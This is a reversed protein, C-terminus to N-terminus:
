DYYGDFFYSFLCDPAGCLQEDLWEKKLHPSTEYFMNSMDTVKNTNFSSLDIEKLLPCRRFMSEMDEVNSTDFNSLDLKKLSKCECFMSNMNKVNKTDFSSLNLKKLSICDSFMSNMDTVNETNFKSLNKIRKLSSCGCFMGSMDTINNRHFKKIKIKKIISCYYFLQEFSCVKEYIKIKIKKVKENQEIYNKKILKKEDNFYIHYYGKDEEKINIFKGYENEMLKIEIEIPSYKESYEKYDNININM